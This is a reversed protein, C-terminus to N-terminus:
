PHNHAMMYRQLKFEPGRSSCDTSGVASGDRWGSGLSDPKTAMHISHDMAPSHAWHRKESLSPASARPQVDDDDCLTGNVPM